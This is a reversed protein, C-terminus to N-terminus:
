NLNLKLSKEHHLRVAYCLVCFCYDIATVARVRM